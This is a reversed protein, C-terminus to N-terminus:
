AQPSGAGQFRICSAVVAQQQTRRRLKSFGKSAIASRILTCDGIAVICTHTSIPMQVVHGKVM